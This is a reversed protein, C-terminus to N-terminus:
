NAFNGNDFTQLEQGDFGFTDTDVKYIELEVGVPLWDMNYLAQKEAISLKDFMVLRLIMNDVHIISIDRDKFLFKLMYNLSGLSGNSINILAKLMLYTYYVDDSLLVNSTAMQNYFPANTFTDLRPEPADNLMKFGLFPQTDSVDAYGRPLALIRGWVDLGYGKATDIDIMNKFLLNVDNEIKILNHFAKIVNKINPSASYQSQITKDILFPTKNGVIDM